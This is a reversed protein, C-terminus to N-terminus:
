GILCDGQMTTNIKVRCSLRFAKNVLREPDAIRLHRNNKEHRYHYRRAFKIRMFETCLYGELNM